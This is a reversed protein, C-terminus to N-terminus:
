QEGARQGGRGRWLRRGGYIRQDGDLILAPQDGDVVQQVTREGRPLAASGTDGKVGPVATPAVKVQMVRLIAGDRELYMVGSDVAITLHLHSDLHAQRKALEFALRVKDQQSETIADAKRRESESMGARLRSMEAGYAYRRYGLWMDGAVLLLFLLGTIKLFTPYAGRFASWAERRRDRGRSVGRRDQPSEQESM